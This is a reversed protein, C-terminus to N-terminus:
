SSNHRTPEAGILLVLDGPRLDRETKTWKRLTQLTPLYERVWRKWFVHSLYQAQRWAKKYRESLTPEDCILGHDSRLLLLDNPTLAHPSSLDDYVQVIPRDSTIREVEVIYTALTEDAVVQQKAVARLLRGTSRRSVHIADGSGRSAQADFLERQVLKDIMRSTDELKGAELLGFLLWSGQM